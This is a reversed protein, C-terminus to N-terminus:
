WLFRRTMSNRPGSCCMRPHLLPSPLQCQSQQIIMRQQRLSNLWFLLLLQVRVKKGIEKMTEIIKEKRKMPNSKNYTEQQEKRSHKMSFAMSDMLENDGQHNECIYTVFATRLSQSSVKAGLNELSWKSMYYNFQAATKLPEGSAIWFLEGQDMAGALLPRLSSETLLFFFCLAVKECLVGPHV